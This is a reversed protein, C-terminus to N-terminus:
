DNINMSDTEIEPLIDDQKRSYNDHVLQRRGLVKGVPSNTTYIGGGGTFATNHEISGSTLTLIGSNLIGGGYGYDNKNAINGYILSGDVTM